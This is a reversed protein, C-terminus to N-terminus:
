SYPKPIYPQKVHPVKRSPADFSPVTGFIYTGEIIVCHAWARIPVRVHLPSELPIERADDGAISWVAHKGTLTVWWPSGRLM